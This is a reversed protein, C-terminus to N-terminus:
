EPCEAFQEITIVCTGSATLDQTEPRQALTISVVLEVYDCNYLEYDEDVIDGIREPDQSNVVKAEVVVTAMTPDLIWESGPDLQLDVSAVKGPITGIYHFVVDATFPMCTPFINDWKMEVEDDAAGAQGWAGAVYRLNPDVIPEPSVVMGHTTLDKYVWTGSYNDVVLDVTGTDVTGKITIEDTWKAYGIGLAALCLVLVMALITIRKM